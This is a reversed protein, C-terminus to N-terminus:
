TTVHQTGGNTVRHREHGIFFDASIGVAADNAATADVTKGYAPMRLPM